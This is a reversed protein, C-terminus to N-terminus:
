KPAPVVAAKGGLAQASIIICNLRKLLGTLDVGVVEGQEKSISLCPGPKPLKLICDMEEVDCKPSFGLVTLDEKLLCLCQGRESPM